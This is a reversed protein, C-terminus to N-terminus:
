FGIHEGVIVTNIQNFKNIIGFEQEPQPLTCGCEVFLYWETAYKWNIRQHTFVFLMGKVGWRLDKLWFIRRIPNLSIREASLPFFAFHWILLIEDWRYVYMYRRIFYIFTLVYIFESYRIKMMKELMRITNGM